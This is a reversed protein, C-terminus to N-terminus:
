SNDIATILAGFLVGLVIIAGIGIAWAGILAYLLNTVIGMFVLFVAIAAFVTIFIRINRILQRTKDSKSISVLHTQLLELPTM